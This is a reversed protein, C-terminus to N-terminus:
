EPYLEEFGPILHGDHLSKMNQRKIPSSTLDSIVQSRDEIEDRSQQLKTSM